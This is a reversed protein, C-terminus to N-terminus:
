CESCSGKFKDLEAQGWGHEGGTSHDHQAQLHQARHVSWCAPLRGRRRFVLGAVSDGDAPPRRRVEQRREDCPGPYCSSCPPSLEGIERCRTLLPIALLLPDLEAVGAEAQHSLRPQTESGSSTDAHANPSTAADPNPPRVRARGSLLHSLSPSPSLSPPPLRPRRRRRPPPPSSLLPSSACGRLSRPAIPSFPRHLH